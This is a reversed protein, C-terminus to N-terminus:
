PRYILLTTSKEKSIPLALNVENEVRLYSKM